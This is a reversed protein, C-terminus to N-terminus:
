MHSKRLKFSLVFHLFFFFFPGSFFISDVHHFSHTGRHCRPHCAVMGKSPLPAALMELRGWALSGQQTTAAPAHTPGQLTPLPISPGPPEEQAQARHPKPAMSSTCLKEGAVGAGADGREEMSRGALHSPLSLQHGKSAEETGPVAEM